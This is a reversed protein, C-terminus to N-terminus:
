KGTVENTVHMESQMTVRAHLYICFLSCHEWEDDACEWCSGSRAHLVILRGGSIHRRIITGSKLMTDSRFVPNFFLDTLMLLDFFIGKITACLDFVHCLQFSTENGNLLSCVLTVDVLWVRAVKSITHLMKGHGRSPFYFTCPLCIKYLSSFYFIYLLSM